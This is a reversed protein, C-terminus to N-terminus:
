LFIRQVSAPLPSGTTLAAALGASCVAACVGGEATRLGFVGVSSGDSVGPGLTASDSASGCPEGKEGGGTQEKEGRASAASAPEGGAAVVSGSVVTTSASAAGVSGVAATWGGSGPARALVGLRRVSASRSLGKLQSGRTRAKRVARSTTQGSPGRLITEAANLCQSHANSSRLTILARAPEATYRTANSGVERMGVRELVSERLERSRV